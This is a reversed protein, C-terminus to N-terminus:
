TVTVIVYLINLTINNLYNNTTSSNQLFNGTYKTPSDMLTELKDVHLFAELTKIINTTTLGVILKAIGLRIGM